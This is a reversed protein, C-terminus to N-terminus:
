GEEKMESPRVHRDMISLSSTIPQPTPETYTSIPMYELTEMTPKMVPEPKVTPTSISPSLGNTVTPKVEVAPKTEPPASQSVISPAPTTAAAASAQAEQKVPEKPTETPVAFENDDGYLDSATMLSM